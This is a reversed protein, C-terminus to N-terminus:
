SQRIGLRASAAKSSSFSVAADAATSSASEPSPSLKDVFKELGATQVFIAAHEIRVDKRLLFSSTLVSNFFANHNSGVYQHKKPCFSSLTKIDFHM